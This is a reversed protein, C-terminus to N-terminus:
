LRGPWLGTRGAGCAKSGTGTYRSTRKSWTEELGWRVIVGIPNYLPIGASSDLVGALL